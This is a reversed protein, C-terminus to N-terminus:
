HKASTTRSFNGSNIPFVELTVSHQDFSSTSTNYNSHTIDPLLGPEDNSFHDINHYNQNNTPLVYAVEIPSNDTTVVRRKLLLIWKPYLKYAVIALILLAMISLPVLSDIPSLASNQNNAPNTQQPPAFAFTAAASVTREQKMPSLTNESQSYYTAM